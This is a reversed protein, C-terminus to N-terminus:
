QEEKMKLRKSANKLNTEENKRKKELFDTLTGNALQSYNMKETVRKWKLKPRNLERHMCCTKVNSYLQMIDFM